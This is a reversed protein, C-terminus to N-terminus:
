TGTEGAHTPYTDSSLTHIAGKHYTAGIVNTTKYAHNVTNQSSADIWVQLLLLHNCRIITNITPFLEYNGPPNSGVGVNVYGGWIPLGGAWM